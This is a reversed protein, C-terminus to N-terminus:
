GSVACTKPPVCWMCSSSSSINSARMSTRLPVASDLSRRRWYRNWFRRALKRTPLRTPSACRPRKASAISSLLPCIWRAACSMTMSSISCPRIEPPTLSISHFYKPPAAPTKRPTPTTMGAVVSARQRANRRQNKTGRRATTSRKKSKGSGKDPPSSSGAGPANTLEVRDM